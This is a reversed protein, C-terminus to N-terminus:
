SLECMNLYNKDMYWSVNDSHRLIHSSDETIRDLEYETLCVSHLLFRMICKIDMAAAYFM